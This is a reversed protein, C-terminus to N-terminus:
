QFKSFELKRRAALDLVSGEEFAVEKLNECGRFCSGSLIEVSRPIIIREIGCRGFADKGIEKLVGGEEFTVEKVHNCGSFCLESLIEVSKPIIIREIGCGDFAKKGIERLISGEEFGIEKLQSWGRFSGDEIFGINKRIVVGGYRYESLIAQLNRQGDNTVRGEEFFFAGFRQM